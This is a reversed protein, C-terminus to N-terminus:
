SIILFLTLLPFNVIIYIYNILTQLKTKFIILILSSDSFDGQSRKLSKLEIWYPNTSWMASLHFCKEAAEHWYSDSDTLSTPIFSKLGYEKEDLESNM